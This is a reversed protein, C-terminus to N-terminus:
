KTQLKRIFTVEDRNNIGYEKIPKNDNELKELGFQLGYTRWVYTWNMSKKINNRELKLIVYRQIANKLDHVTAGLMVVVPMVDDDAKKVNVTMAQGYELAIKSKIEEATIQKPLDCLLPDEEIIKSLGNQLKTMADKHFLGEDVLEGDSPPQPVTQDGGQGPNTDEGHAPEDSPTGPRLQEEHDGGQAPAALTTDM